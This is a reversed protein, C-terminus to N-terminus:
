NIKSLIQPDMPKVKAPFFGVVQGEPDILYKCFNWTPIEGSKAELWKYLPHKDRGLVSIKEFMCFDVGYNKKCFNSIEENSGPEQWLFNNSPFGLVTVRDGREKHLKELGEYQYTYGCRSATNVILIYKGRFSSFDISKGDISKLKFDYISGEVDARKGKLLKASLYAVAGVISVVLFVALLIKKYPM